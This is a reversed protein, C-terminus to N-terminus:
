PFTIRYFRAAGLTDIYQYQGAPSETATGVTTFTGDV